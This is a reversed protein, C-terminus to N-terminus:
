STKKIEQSRLVYTAFCVFVFEATARRLDFTDAERLCAVLAEALFFDAPDDFFFDVAAGFFVAFALAAVLFFVVLFVDLGARVVTVLFVPTAPERCTALAPLVM